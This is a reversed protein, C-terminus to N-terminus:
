AAPSRRRRTFGLVGFGALATGLITLSSPEPVAAFTVNGFGLAPTGLTAYTFTGSGPDAYWANRGGRASCHGATCHSGFQFAALNGSAGNEVTGM